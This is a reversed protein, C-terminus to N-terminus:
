EDTNWATIIEEAVASITATSVKIVDSLLKPDIVIGNLQIYAVLAAGALTTVKRSKIGPSVKYATTVLESIDDVTEPTLGLRKTYAAVLGIAPDRNRKKPRHKYGTRYESFHTLAASIDNQELNVKSALETHSMDIGLERCAYYLCAFRRMARKNNRNNNIKTFKKSIIEAREVIDPPLEMELKLAPSFLVTKKKTKYKAHLSDEYDPNQTHSFRYESGVIIGCTKCICNVPDINEHSCRDHITGQVSKLEASMKYPTYKKIM